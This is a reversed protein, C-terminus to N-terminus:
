HFSDKEDKGEPCDEGAWGERLGLSGGVRRRRAWGGAGVIPHVEKGIGFLLFQVLRVIRGHHCIGTQGRFLLAQPVLHLRRMLRAPCWARIELGLHMGEPLFHVGGHDRGVGVDCRDNSFDFGM